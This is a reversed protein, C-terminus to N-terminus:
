RMVEISGNFELVKDHRKGYFRYFYTGESSGTAQPDWQDKKSKINKARYIIKGNRNYIILENEPFANQDVLNHIEFIDNIGDGNPTVVNPFLVYDVQLDLYIISDCGLYTQLKQEYIGTEKENFGFQNYINEKYIDAKITDHYSPNVHLHLVLISDCGFTTNLNQVYTGISDAEFGFEYIDGQCITDYITDYYPNHVLLNLNVISDCGYQSLFNHTYLGEKTETFGFENFTEGECINAYITDNYKEGVILNLNVISDCGFITQLNQTYFGTERENFGYDSYIEGICIDDFITDNYTPHVILNLNVISDCGKITNLYLTYFGSTSDSFGNSDYVLGQCIEAYITDNYTPNVTLDLYIVSDCGYQSNFNHTYVGELTENFGFDNYAEGLCIDAHITDNYKEGVILNLYVISDCYYINMLSDVYIGTTNENFGFDSYTEGECIVAYITDNNIPNVTLNLNVISDCGKTSQLSLTYLGSISDNFGNLDYVTGQCIEAYITDNYTPNVTLDLYIVSDCGYQSVLVLENVGPLNTNFGNNTYMEDDCIEASIYTTDRPNVIINISDFSYCGLSDILELSYITDILPVFSISAITDQNSWFYNGGHNAFLVATDNKCVVSDGFINLDPYPRELKIITDLIDVCQDNAIGSILRVKIESTDSFTKVANLTTITDGDPFVWKTTECREGTGAP